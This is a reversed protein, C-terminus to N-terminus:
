KLVSRALDVSKDISNSAPDSGIGYSIIIWKRGDLVHLQGNTKNFFASEGVGTIAEASNNTRTTAFDEKNQLTGSDNIASRVAVAVVVIAEAGASIDTYSCKSTAVNGSVVPKDADVGEMKKGLLAEAKAPTFLDCADVAPYAFRLSHNYLVIAVILGVIIVLGVAAGGITFQRKHDIIYTKAAQFYHKLKNM